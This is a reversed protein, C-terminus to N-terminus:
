RQLCLQRVFCCFIQNTITLCLHSVQLSGPHYIFATLVQFAAKARAIENESNLFSEYMAFPVGGAKLIAAQQATNNYAFLSLACGAELRINQQLLFYWLCTVVASM